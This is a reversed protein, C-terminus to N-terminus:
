KVSQALAIFDRYSLAHDREPGTLLQLEYGPRPSWRITLGYLNRRDNSQYKWVQATTGSVQITDIQEGSPTSQRATRGFYLYISCKTPPGSWFRYVNGTRENWSLPGATCSPSVSSPMPVTAADLVRHTIGQGDILARAGLPARLHVAVPVPSHGPLACSSGEPITHAYGAMSVTVSNATEHVVPRDIAVGCTHITLHTRDNDAFVYVANPDSPDSVPNVWPVDGAYDLRDGHVTIFRPAAPPPEAASHSEGSRHAVVVVLGVVAAVSAVAALMLRYRRRASGATTDLVTEIASSLAPPQSLNDRWRAADDRVQDEISPM